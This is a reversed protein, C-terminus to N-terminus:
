LVRLHLSSALLISMYHPTLTGENWCNGVGDSALSGVSSAPVVQCCVGEGACM